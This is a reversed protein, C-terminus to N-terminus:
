NYQKISDQVMKRSKEMNVNGSVIASLLEPNKSMAKVADVVAKHNNHTFDPGEYQGIKKKQHSPDKSVLFVGITSGSVRKDKRGYGVTFKVSQFEPVLEKVAEPIRGITYRLFNQTYNEM